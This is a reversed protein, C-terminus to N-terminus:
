VKDGLQYIQQQKTCGALAALMLFAAAALVSRRSARTTHDNLLTM